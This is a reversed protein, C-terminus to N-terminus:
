VNSQQYREVTDLSSSFLFDGIYAKDRIDDRELEWNLVKLLANKKLFVLFEQDYILPDPKFDIINRM